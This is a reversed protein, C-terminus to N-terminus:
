RPAGSSEEDVLAGIAEADRANLVDIATAMIGVNEQSM